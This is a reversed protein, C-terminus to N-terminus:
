SVMLKSVCYCNYSATCSHGMCLVYHFMEKLCLYYYDNHNNNSKGPTEIGKFYYKRIICKASGSYLTMGIIVAVTIMIM